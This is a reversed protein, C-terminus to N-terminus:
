RALAVEDDGRVVDPLKQEGVHLPHDVEYVLGPCVGEM